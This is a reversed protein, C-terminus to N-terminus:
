KSKSSKKRTYGAVKTGDKKTYGKVEITDASKETKTEAKTETKTETKEDKDKVHKTYGAVKTGDKKTYGKVQIDKAFVAGGSALIVIMTLFLSFISNM